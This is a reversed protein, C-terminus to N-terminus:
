MRGQTGHDVAAGRGAGFALANWLEQLMPQRRPDESVNVAVIGIPAAGTFAPETKSGNDARKAGAAVLPHCGDLGEKVWGVSGGTRCARDTVQAPELLHRQSLAKGGLDLAAPEAGLRQGCSHVLHDLLDDAGLPGRVGAAHLIAALQREVAGLRADL